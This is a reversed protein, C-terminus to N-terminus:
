ECRLVQPHKERKVLRKVWIYRGLAGRRNTFNAPRNLENPPEDVVHAGIRKNGVTGGWPINTALVDVV